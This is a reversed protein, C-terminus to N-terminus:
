TPRDVAAWLRRAEALTAETEYALYPSVELSVYGDRRNTREYVPRMLDAARACTGLALAEYLAKVDHDGGAALAALAADYDTSGAIAKEFIAPNSTM